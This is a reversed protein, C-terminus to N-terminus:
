KSSSEIIPFQNMVQNIKIEIFVLYVGLTESFERLHQTIDIHCFNFSNIVRHDYSCGLSRAGQPATTRPIQNLDTM